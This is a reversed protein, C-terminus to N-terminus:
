LGYKETQMEEIEQQTAIYGDLLNRDYEYIANAYEVRSIFDGISGSELFITLLSDNGHEYMYKMRLKMNEYQRQEAEQAMQLEYSLEEIETECESIQAELSNIETLISVLEQDLEAIENELNAKEQELQNISKAARVTGNFAGLMVVSALTVAVFRNLFRSKSMFFIGRM